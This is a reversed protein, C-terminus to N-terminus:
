LYSVCICLVPPGWYFRFKSVSLYSTNTCLRKIRPLLANKMAPYDLLSAFTPLVSLCLEQIQQADSELARYLMPLVDTKIEDAPTLQLLLEMKQMFILLVQLILLLIHDFFSCYLDQSSLLLFNQFVLISLLHLNVQIPEQIKMVPKLGPLIKQCYEEKSCKEAMLLVNPLVFPVM